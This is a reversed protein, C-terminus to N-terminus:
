SVQYRSFGGAPVCVTLRLRLKPTIICVAAMLKPPTSWVVGKPEVAKLKLVLVLRFTPRLVLAGFELSKARKPAPPVTPETLRSGLWVRRQLM